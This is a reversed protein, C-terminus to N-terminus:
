YEIISAVKYPDRNPHIITEDIKIIVDKSFVSQIRDMNGPYATIGHHVTISKPTRGNVQKLLKKIYESLKIINKDEKVASLAETIQDATLILDCGIIPKLTSRIISVCLRDLYPDKAGYQERAKAAKRWGYSLAERTRGRSWAEESKTWCELLVQAFEPVKIEVTDNNDNYHLDTRLAM